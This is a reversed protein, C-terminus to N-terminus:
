REPNYRSTARRVAASGASDSPSVARKFGERRDLGCVRAAIAAAIAMATVAAAACACTGAGGGPGGGSVRGDTGIRGPLGDCSILTGPATAVGNSVGTGIGVAEGVGLRRAKL